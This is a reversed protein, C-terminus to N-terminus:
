KWYYGWKFRYGLGFGLYDARAFHTKLTLNAFVNRHILYQIGVKYYTIGESKDKGGLYFGLNFDFSTRALVLSYGAAIGPKTLERKNYSETNFRNVLLADSGDWSLDFCMGVKHKYEISKMVSVFGAYINFKEGDIDGTQKRAYLGGIKVELHEKGDFEFMTLDPRLRRQILPQEKNLRFAMGASVAPINLGYNPTKASGNSFHMLQIGASLQLHPSPRWRYEAMLNVAANVHSGIANYKYNTLRDFKKTLYAAGAGLRFNFEQKYSKYLPFSIFPFLAHAQGLDRSNGLWANYYTVGMVPYNFFSEWERKGYTAKSISFEFSPFHSNYIEMEVHHAILFGYNVRPEFLLNAGQFRHQAHVDVCNWFLLM